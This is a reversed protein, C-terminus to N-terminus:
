EKSLAEGATRIPGSGLKLMQRIHEKEDERLVGPLIEAATVSRIPSGDEGARTRGSPTENGHTVAWDGTM